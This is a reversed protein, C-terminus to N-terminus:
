APSLHHHDHPSM